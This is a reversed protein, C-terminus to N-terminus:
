YMPMTYIPRAEDYRGVGVAAGKARLLAFLKESLAGAEYGAPDAGLLSSGFSLDLIEVTARRCDVALPSAFGEAERELWAVIRKSDPHPELGRAARAIYQALRPHVRDLRLPTNSDLEM